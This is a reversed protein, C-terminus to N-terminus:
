LSPKSYAAHIQRVSGSQTPLGSARVTEPSGPFFVSHVVSRIFVINRDFHVVYRPPSTSVSL